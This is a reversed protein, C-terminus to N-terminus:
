SDDSDIIRDANDSESPVSLRVAANRVANLASHVIVEHQSVPVTRESRVWRQPVGRGIIMLDYQRTM